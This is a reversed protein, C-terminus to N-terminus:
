KEMLRDIDAQLQELYQQYSTQQYNLAANGGQESYWAFHGTESQFIADTPDVEIMMFYDAVYKAGTTRWSAGGSVNVIRSSDDLEATVGAVIANVADDRHVFEIKQDPLFPWAAPPEQFIPISVGSIRLVCSDLDSDIVIQESEAKTKAYNDDPAYTQSTTIEADSMQTGYVSVSSSFVLRAKPANSKIADVIIQTGGVNVRQTLEILENAVPPLIAALHVVADVGEVAAQVDEVSTLDGPFAVVGQPLDAFNATALDFAKVAHGDLALRACVQRGMSGAGGTVLVTPM